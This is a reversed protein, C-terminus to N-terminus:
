RLKKLDKNGAVLTTDDAYRINNIRRGGIRMGANSDSKAGIRYIPQVFRAGKKVPFWETEGEQLHVRAEQNTYLVKILTVLHPPIGM